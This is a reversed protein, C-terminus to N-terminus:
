ENNIEVLRVPAQAAVMGMKHIILQGKEGALHAAFGTGIGSRTGLKVVYVDRRMPYSKEYIYAQYPKKYDSESSPDEFEAVGLVKIKQLFTQTLSDKKDALWAISIVGLGDPNSAVYDIVEQNSKKAYCYKSLSAGGLVEDRMYRYNASGQNDFVVNVLNNKAKPDLQAWTSDSGSFLARVQGMTLGNIPNNPNVILAVADVAIHTVYAPHTAKKFYDKEEQTLDRGIVAMRISDNILDKIIEAEPKYIAKVKAKQYFSEFTFIQTDMLPIYSEDIAVKLDGSTATDKPANSCQTSMLALLVIIASYVSKM